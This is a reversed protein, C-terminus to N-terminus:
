EIALLYFVTVDLVTLSIKIYVSYFFSPTKNQKEIFAKPNYNKALCYIIEFTGKFLMDTNQRKFTDSNIKTLCNNSYSDWNKILEKHIIKRFKRTNKIYYFQLINKLLMLATRQSGQSKYIKYSAWAYKVSAKNNCFYKEFREYPINNLFGYRLKDGEDLCLLQKKISDQEEHRRYKVLNNKLLVFTYKDKLRFWLDYDQTVPLKENFGSGNILAGRPILLTCGNLGVRASIALFIDFYNFTNINIKDKKIAGSSFLVSANSAVIINSTNYTRLLNIQDEIKTPEYLDDHSLWSFYKGTMNKIGFNLASAVGGNEKKFYRIRNGYSKVIKETAGNDNSGDNIVIIEINKYTQALASDIAEKLYNSGNYVPIVISVKPNM